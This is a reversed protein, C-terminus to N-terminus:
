EDLEKEKLEKYSKLGLEIIEYYLEKLNKKVGKKKLSLQEAMIEFHSEDPVNLSVNPM